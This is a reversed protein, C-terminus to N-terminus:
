PVEYVEVLAIGTTDNAGNVRVTYAGQPFTRVLAADTSGAPFPFAGIKAAAAVTAEANDAEWDNNSFLVEGHVDVVELRPDALVGAVGLASLTPGAARVLLRKPQPGDIVLGPILVKNGAGVTSWFKARIM